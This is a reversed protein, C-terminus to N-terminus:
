AFKIKKLTEKASKPKMPRSLLFVLATFLLLFFAVPLASVFSRLSFESQTIGYNKELWGVYWFQGGFGAVGLIGLVPFVLLWFRAPKGWVGVRRVSWGAGSGTIRVKKPDGDYTLAIVLTHQHGRYPNLFPASIAATHAEVTTSIQCQDLSSVAAVDIIRSSKGSLSLNITANRIVDFGPNFVEVQSFGLAHVQQDNYTVRIRDRLEKRINILSTTELDHVM